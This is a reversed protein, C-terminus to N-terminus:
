KNYLKYEYKNEKQQNLHLEVINHVWQLSEILDVQQFNIFQLLHQLVLLKKM